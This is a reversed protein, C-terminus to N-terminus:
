LHEGGALHQAEIVVAFELGPADRPEACATEKRLVFTLM